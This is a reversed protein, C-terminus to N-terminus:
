TGPSTYLMLDYVKNKTKFDSETANDKPEELEPLSEEKEEAM